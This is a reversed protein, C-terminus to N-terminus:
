VHNVESLAALAATAVAIPLQEISEIVAVFRDAEHSPRHEGIREFMAEFQDITVCWGRRHMGGVVLLMGDGTLFNRPPRLCNAVHAEIDKQYWRGHRKKWVFEWLEILDDNALHEESLEIACAANCILNFWHLVILRIQEDTKATLDDGFLRLELEKCITDADTPPHTM